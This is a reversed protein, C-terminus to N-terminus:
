FVAVYTPNFTLQLKSQVILSTTQAHHHVVSPTQGKDSAGLLRGSINFHIQLRIRTLTRLSFRFNDSSIAMWREHFHHTILISLFYIKLNNYNTKVAPICSAKPYLLTVYMPLQCRSCRDAELSHIKLHHRNLITVTRDSVPSLRITRTLWYLYFTVHAERQLQM